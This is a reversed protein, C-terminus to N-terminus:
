RSKASRNLFKNSLAILNIEPLGELILVNKDARQLWLGSAQKSNWVRTNKTTQSTSLPQADKYRREILKEASIYFEEAEKENDWLSLFIWALSGNSRNELLLYRDGGWGESAKVAEAEPIFEKLLVYLNFEGLVDRDAERWDAGIIEQLMSYNLKIDVPNDRHSLYKEPHMIQETSTPLDKYIASVREWPYNKRVAQIFSLGYIYPFLLNDKIVNPVQDFKLTPILTLQSKLQELMLIKLDPFDGLNIGQPSLLYEFMVATGEGEVLAMKAMHADNADSLPNILNSLDFYQDQLAHMLEHAMVPKQFEAPIWDALYLVKKYQDYYGGIQETYLETLFRELNMTSPILGLKALTKQTALLRQSTNEKKFRDLVFAEIAKQSGLKVEVAAKPQLGRIRAIDILVEKTWQRLQEEDTNTSALIPPKSKALANPNINTIVLSHFFLLAFLLVFGASIKITVMRRM